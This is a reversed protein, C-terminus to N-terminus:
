DNFFTNDADSTSGIVITEFDRDIKRRETDSLFQIPVGNYEFRNLDDQNGVILLRRYKSPLSQIKVQGCSLHMTMTKMSVNPSASMRTAYMTNILYSFANYVDQSMYVIEAHKHNQMLRVSKEELLDITIDAPLCYYEYM